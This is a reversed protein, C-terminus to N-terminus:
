SGFAERPRVYRYWYVTMTWPLLWLAIRWLTLSPEDILENTALDAHFPGWAFFLPVSALLVVFWGASGFVGLLAAVVVCGHVGALVAYRTLKAHLRRPVRPITRAV